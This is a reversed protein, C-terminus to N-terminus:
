DRAHHVLAEFLALSEGALWAAHASFVVPLTFVFDWLLGAQISARFTRVVLNAWRIPILSAALQRIMRRRDWAELQGRVRAFEQARQFRERLLGLWSSVHHHEVVARPEFTIPYGAGAVRWSFVTDGIMYEGPFMGLEVLIGRPSLLNVTPAISIGRAEGGPLWMDFKALHTGRDLWRSGHCLVSGVIVGGFRHHAELLRDLWDPAPYADPDTFVLLDAKALSAGRNRAAHPLLRQGARELRVWPFRDGVIQAGQASPGSDIVIVEFGELSQRSIAELCEPLTEHSNYAPIVVSLRPRETKM